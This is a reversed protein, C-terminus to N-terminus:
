EVQRTLQCTWETYEGIPIATRCGACWVADEGARRTLMMLGCSPCPVGDLTVTKVAQGTVAEARRHLWLIERGADAGSLDPYADVYEPRVVGLVDEPLKGLDETTLVRRMPEPSLGILTPVFRALVLCARRIMETRQGWSVNAPAPDLGAVARVREEWSVLLDGMNVMLRDVELDLPSPPEPRSTSVKEATTHRNKERLLHGLEEYHEPFQHLAHTIDAACPDCFTRSTLAPSLHGELTTTASRCHRGRACERHTDHHM